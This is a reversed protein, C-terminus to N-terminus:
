YAPRLLRSPKQARSGEDFEERSVQQAGFHNQAIEDNPIQNKLLRPNLTLRMM